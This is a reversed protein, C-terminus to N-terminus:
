IKWGLRDEPSTSEFVNQGWRNYIKWHMEAIGFGKVKVIGNVGFKGPTFATPVDIVPHIIAQVPQCTDDSCGAENQATLCVNYTGTAPFIHRPNRGKFYRWRWFEM